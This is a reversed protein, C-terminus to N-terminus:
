PERSNEVASLLQELDHLGITLKPEEPLPRTLRKAEDVDMRHNIAADTALKKLRFYQRTDM